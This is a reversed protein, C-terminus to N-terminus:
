FRRTFGVIVVLDAFAADGNAIEGTRETELKDSINQTRM